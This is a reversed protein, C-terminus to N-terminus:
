DSEAGRRQRKRESHRRKESLRNERAKRPTRTPVRKKRVALARRIMEVLRAEAADRNLKQSRHESAVVRVFGDTDVRGGLREALQDRLETPLAASHRVNWHLEIRTATKNVHQGGPGGSRSARVILEDRPISVGGTVELSGSM